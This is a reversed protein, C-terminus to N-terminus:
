KSLGAVTYQIKKAITEIKKCSYVLKTLMLIISHVRKKITINKYILIKDQM